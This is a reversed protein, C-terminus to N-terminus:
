FAIELHDNLLLFSQCALQLLMDLFGCDNALDFVINSPHHKNFHCKMHVKANSSSVM